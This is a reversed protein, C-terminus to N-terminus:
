PKHGAAPDQPWRPHGTLASGRSAFSIAAVAPGAAACTLPLPPQETFRRPTVRLAALVPVFPRRAPDHHRPYQAVARWSRGVLLVPRTMQHHVALRRPAPRGPVPRSALLAGLTGTDPLGTPRTALGQPVAVAAPWRAGYLNAGTPNAHFLDARTLKAKHLNAGTLNAGPIFTDTLHANSLNAGILIAGGADAHSLNANDLSASTLSAGNLGARTLNAGALGVAGAATSCEPRRVTASLSGSAVTSPAASSSRRM